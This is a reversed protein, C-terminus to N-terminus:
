PSQRLLRLRCMIRCNVHPPGMVCCVVHFPVGGVGWGQVSKGVFLYFLLFGFCQLHLEIPNLVADLLFLKIDVPSWSRGVQGVIESFVVCWRVMLVDSGCIYV